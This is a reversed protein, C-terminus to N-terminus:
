LKFVSVADNLVKAQDKLANAERAAEEVLVANQQTGKEMHVIADSIQEIGRSQEESAAAIEGVIASVQEIARKVEGITERAGSAQKTGDQIM